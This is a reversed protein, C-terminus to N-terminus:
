PQAPTASLTRDPQAAAHLRPRPMRMHRPLRVSIFAHYRMREGGVNSYGRVPQVLSAMQVGSKGEHAMAQARDFRPTM